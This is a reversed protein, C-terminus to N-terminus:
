LLESIYDDILAWEEESIGGCDHKEELNSFCQFLYKDDHWGDFLIDNPVYNNMEIGIKDEINYITINSPSYGRHQMEWRILNCYTIFHTLPYRMIKNVLIHNPTGLVNINIAIACCERWQGLLQMKPLIPVLDKHWLRM